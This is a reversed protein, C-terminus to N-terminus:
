PLAVEVAEGITGERTLQLIFGDTPLADREVAVVFMAAGVLDSTCNRPALPDSTASFVVGGDIGVGDLRVESCSSGIGHGFSVVVEESLDVQPARGELGIVDWMEAWGDADSSARVVYAELGGAQGSALLRWGDGQNANSWEGPLPFVTVDLMGGHALELRVEATPDNSKLELTVKNGITDLGAGIMQMGEAELAEFDVSELLAVLAAETFRVQRVQTGPLIDSVAQRHTDLDATFLMVVRSGGPPDLYLGGFAERHRNGYAILGDIDPPEPGDPGIRVPPPTAPAADTVAPATTASPGSGMGCGALLVGLIIALSRAKM